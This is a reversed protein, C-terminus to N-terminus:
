THVEHLTLIDLTKVTDRITSLDYNDVDIVMVPTDDSLKYDEIRDILTTAETIFGDLTKLDIVQRHLEQEFREEIWKKIPIDSPHPLIKPRGTLCNTNVYLDSLLDTTEIWTAIAQRATPKKELSRLFDITKQRLERQKKLRGLSFSLNGKLMGVTNTQDPGWLWHRDSDKKLKIGKLILRLLDLQKETDIALLFSASSSNSVLGTRVKM